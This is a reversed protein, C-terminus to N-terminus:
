SPHLQSPYLTSVQMTTTMFNDFSDLQQGVLGREQFHAAVVTWADEETIPESDIRHQRDLEQFNFPEDVEDEEKVAIPQGDVMDDMGYGNGSPKIDEMDM